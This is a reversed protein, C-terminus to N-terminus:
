QLNKLEGEWLILLMTALYKSTYIYRRPIITNLKMWLDRLLTQLRLPVSAELAAHLTCVVVDAYPILLRPEFQNLKSLMLM